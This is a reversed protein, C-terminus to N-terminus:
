RGGFGNWKGYLFNKCGQIWCFFFAGGDYLFDYGAKLDDKDKEQM